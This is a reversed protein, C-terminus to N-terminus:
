HHYASITYATIFGTVMCDHGRRGWMNINTIKLVFTCSIQVYSFMKTKHQFCPEFAFLLVDRQM